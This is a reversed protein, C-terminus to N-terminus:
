IDTRYNCQSLVVYNADCQTYYASNTKAAIQSQITSLLGTGTRLQIPSILSACNSAAVSCCNNGCTGSSITAAICNKYNNLRILTDTYSTCVNRDSNDTCACGDCYSVACDNQENCYAGSLGQCPATSGPPYYQPYMCLTNTPCSGGLQYCYGYDVSNCACFGGVCNSNGFCQSSTTCNGGVPTYCNFVTEELFCKQSSYACNRKKSTCQGPAFSVIKQCELYPGYVACDADIDCSQFGPVVYPCINNAVAVVACFLLVGVLKFM